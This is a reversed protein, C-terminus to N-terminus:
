RHPNSRMWDAWARCIQDPTVRFSKALAEQCNGSQSLTKLFENSRRRDLGVLYHFFGASAPASEIWPLNEQFVGWLTKPNAMRAAAALEDKFGRSKADYHSGEYRAYGYIAWPPMRRNGMHALFAATVQQAVLGDLEYGPHATTMALYQHEPLLRYHGFEASEPIYEDIQRAFALYDVRDAFINLGFRGRWAQESRSLGFVLKLEDLVAEALTAAYETDQKSLTAYVLFNDTELFTMKQKSAVIQIQRDAHGRHLKALVDGDLNAIAQRRQSELDILYNGIPATRSPGDFKAGQKVWATWIEAWRRDFRTQGGRPMRPEAKGTVLLLIRSEAPKGPEIHEMFTEFTSANFDGAPNPGGHCRVCVNQIIPAVDKKFSVNALDVPINVLNDLDELRVNAKKTEPGKQAAKGNPATQSKKQIAALQKNLRVLIPDNELLEADLAFEDIAIRMESISLEVARREMKGSGREIEALRKELRDLDKKLEAPLDDSAIANASFGAAITWGIAVYMVAIFVARAQQNPIAMWGNSM